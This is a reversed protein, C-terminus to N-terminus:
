QAKKMGTNPKDADMPQASDKAMNDKAMNDKAMDNAGTGTTAPAPRAADSSSSAQKRSDKDFKVAPANKLNEKTTNLVIRVDDDNDNNRTIMLANPEVAVDHEGIGLFGGVGIVVARLTKGDDLILDEIDGINENNVNYVTAGILKSVRVDAPKVAYFAVAVEGVPKVATVGSPAQAKDPGDQNTAASGGPKTAAAGGPKTAMSDPQKNTTSGQPTSQGTMAPKDAPAAQDKTAPSQAFATGTLAVVACATVFLREM